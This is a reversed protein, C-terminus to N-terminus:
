FRFDELGFVTGDNSKNPQWTRVYIRPNLTDNLDIMLFLYGKDAYSSSFYHQAIQIGYIKEDKQTKRVENDEFRMNIFENKAFIRDLRDMYDQKSLKIYEVNQQSLGGYLSQGEPSLSQRAVVNGIIILAEEDFIAELYDHRKLCYATKYDEMFSILFHRDEVSGFGDPREMIDKIANDGLAHSVNCVKNDKDFTFVVEEIFKTRNNRYSFAMPFARVSTKDNITWLEISDKQLPLIEINAGNMMSYFLRYGEETFLDRVSEPKKTKISGLVAELIGRYPKITNKSTSFSLSEGKKLAKKGLSNSANMTGDLPVRMEARPFYPIDVSEIMLQVEPELRAKHSYRYEIQIRLDKNSRALEGHISAIGRGNRASVLSSYGDGVWYIYDLDEVTKGQYHIELFIRRMIPTEKLESHTVRVDLFSFIRNIKDYLGMMLTRETGNEFEGRMRTNDPHSRTLILAWYYYRLADAIRLEEEARLASNIFSEILEARQTFIDEMSKKEIFVLIEFGESDERIVREDYRNIVASSYTKVVSNVYRDFDSETEKVVEEFKSQVNVSISNTLSELADRRASNYNSGKGIGFYYKDSERIEDITQGKVCAIPLITILLF